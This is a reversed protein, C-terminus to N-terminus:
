YNTGYFDSTLIRPQVDIKTIFNGKINKNMEWTFSYNTIIGITRLKGPVKVALGYWM